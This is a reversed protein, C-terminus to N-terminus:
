MCSLGNYGRGRERGVAATRRSAISARNVAACDIFSAAARWAPFLGLRVGAPPVKAAGGDIPAHIRPNGLGALRPSGFRGVADGARKM